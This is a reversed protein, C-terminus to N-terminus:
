AYDEKFYEDRFKVWIEDNRPNWGETFKLRPNTFYSLTLHDDHLENFLKTFRKLGMEGSEKWLDYYYDCMAWKSLHTDDNVVQPMEWAKLDKALLIESIKKRTEPTHEKGYFPHDEGVRPVHKARREDSWPVGKSRESMRQRHEESFKRGYLPSDKGRLVKRKKFKEKTEKTHKKGFFPNNEGVISKGLEVSLCGCSRTNGSTLSGSPVTVYRGCDCECVWQAQRSGAPSTYFDALEVVLLRGFREGMRDKYRKGRKTESVKASFDRRLAAYTRSNVKCVARNSMMMAAYTLPTNDPYAKWLLMHVIFHERGTLMVLNSEEDGGGMCRPVIHHIEFYGEHKNKDLGRPRAKEVLQDYIKKYNM